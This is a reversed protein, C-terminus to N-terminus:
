MFRAFTECADRPNTLREQETEWLKADSASVFRLHSLQNKQM